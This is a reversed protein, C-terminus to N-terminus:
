SRVAELASRFDKEDESYDALTVIWAAFVLAEPKSMPERPPMMIVIKDGQVGVLHKNMTDM